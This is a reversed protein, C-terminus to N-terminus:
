RWVVGSISALATAAISCRSVIASWNAPRRLAPFMTQGQVLLGVRGVSRAEFHSKMLTAWNAWGQRLRHDAGKLREGHCRDGQEWAGHVDPPEFGGNPASPTDLQRVADRPEEAVGSDEM